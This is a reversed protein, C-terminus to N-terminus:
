NPALGPLKVKYRFLGGYEDVEKLLEHGAKSIWYTQVYSMGKYDGKTQLKWCDVQRNDLTALVESGTVSYAVYKPPDLGADYFNILFTKGAALPLMEFTEIDLHWNYNPQDFDLKYGAAANGEVTDAATVGTASWNYAISRGGRFAAHYVPSFDTVSNFSVFRSYRLSDAGYWFQHVTFVPQNNVTTKGIDRVWLSLDLRDPKGPFQFYVLYQRMGTKLLRTDLKHHRQDITDTQAFVSQTVSICLICLLCIRILLTNCRLVTGFSTM